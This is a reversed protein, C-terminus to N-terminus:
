DPGQTGDDDAAGLRELEALLVLLALLLLFDAM